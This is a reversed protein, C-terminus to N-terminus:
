LFVTKHVLWSGQSSFHDSAWLKTNLPMQRRLGMNISNSQTNIQNDKVALCVSVTKQLCAPQMNIIRGWLPESVSLELLSGQSLCSILSTLANRHPHGLTLTATGTMGAVSTLSLGHGCATSAVAFTIRPASSHVEWTAQSCFWWWLHILDDCTIRHIVIEM